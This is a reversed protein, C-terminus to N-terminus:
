LVFSGVEHLLEQVDVLLQWCRDVNREDVLAHTVVGDQVDDGLLRSDELRLLSAREKEADFHVPWCFDRELLDWFGELLLSLDSFAVVLLRDTLKLDLGFLTM